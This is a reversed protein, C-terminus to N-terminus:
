ANAEMGPSLDFCHGCDFGIFEIDERAQESCIGVKKNCPGRFTIGGHVKVDVKNELYPHGPPIAVYGNWHGLIMNRNAICPMDTAEDIWEVHDPEAQWPGSGWQKKTPWKEMTLKRPEQAM